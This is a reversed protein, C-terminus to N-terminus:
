LLALLDEPIQIGKVIAEFEKEAKQQIKRNSYWEALVAPIIGEIDKRFITGNASLIFQSDEAFILDYLEACSIEMDEDDDYQLVIIEESREMVMTYEVASFENLWIEKDKMGQNRKREIMQDTYDPRIQAFLTEPSMNLARLTSPYLSNLDVAGVYRTIGTKPDSVFAGIAPEVEELEIIDDFEAEPKQKSGPIVKNFKDHAFLAIAQTILAVSGMTTKLLVCNQHAVKNALEIFKKKKDIKSLLKVDQRNYELFLEYENNYLYDLTGEYPTKADHVEEQAVADLRYSHLQQQNHKQYLELYDLHVVGITDYTTSKNKFKIYERKRPNQGWLCMPSAADADGFIRKTREVIYPIDYGTSNWGSIVDCQHICKFFDTLMEKESDYLTTNKFKRCIDKAELVALTDPKLTFTYIEDTWNHYVSISTIKNFPDTTPAYGKDKHFDAEIDFFGIRLNPLQANKYNEELCRFIPNMDDEYFKTNEAILSKKFANFRNQNNTHFKKVRTGYISFHKGDDNEYYLIYDAKFKKLKRIGEPTREAVYIMDEKREYHADVYM